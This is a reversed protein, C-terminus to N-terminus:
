RNQKGELEKIKADKESGEKILNEVQVSLKEVERLATEVDEIATEESIKARTKQILLINKIVESFGRIKGLDVQERSRTSILQEFVLREIATDVSNKDDFDIDEVKVAKFKWPFKRANIEALSLEEDPGDDPPDVPEDAEVDHVGAWDREKM